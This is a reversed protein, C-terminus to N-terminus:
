TVAPRGPTFLMRDGSTIALAESGELRDVWAVSGRGMVFAATSHADALGLTPGTDTTSIV